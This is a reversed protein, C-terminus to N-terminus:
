NEKRILLYIGNESNNSYLIKAFKPEFYYFHFKDSLHNLEESKLKKLFEDITMEKNEFLFIAEDKDYSCSVRGLIVYSNKIKIEQNNSINKKSLILDTTEFQTNNQDFSVKIVNQDKILSNPIKISFNGKKDSYTTLIKELTVFSIKANIIPNGNKDSIVKGKFHTSDNPKLNNSKKTSSIRKSKLISDTSQVLETRPKANEANLPQGISLSTALMLGITIHSSPLNYNKKPEFDLLPMNLQRQTVRACINGNAKKIKDSIEFQNLQTFDIVNKSCLDCFGGKENPNMNEWKESCPKKIKLSKTKM